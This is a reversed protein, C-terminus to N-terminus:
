YERCINVIEKCNEVVFKGGEYNKERRSIFFFLAPIFKVSEFRRDVERM